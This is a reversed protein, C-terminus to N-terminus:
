APQAALAKALREVQRPAGMQEYLRKAELLAREAAASHGQGRELRARLEFV